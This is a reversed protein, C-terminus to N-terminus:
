HNLSMKLQDSQKSEACNFADEHHEIKFDYAAKENSSIKKCQSTM